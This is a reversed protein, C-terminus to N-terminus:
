RGNILDSLSGGAIYNDTSFARRLLFKQWGKYDKIMDERKETLIEVLEWHEKDTIDVDKLLVKASFESGQVFDTAFYCWTFFAVTYLVWYKGLKNLLEPDDPIAYVFVLYRFFIYVLFVFNLDIILDFKSLM